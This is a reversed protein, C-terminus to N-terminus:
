LWKKQECYHRSFFTIYAHIERSFMAVFFTPSTSCLWQACLDICEDSRNSSIVSPLRGVITIVSAYTKSEGNPM